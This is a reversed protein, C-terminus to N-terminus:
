KYNKIGIIYWFSQMQLSLQNNLRTNEWLIVTSCATDMIETKQINLLGETHQYSNKAGNNNWFILKM